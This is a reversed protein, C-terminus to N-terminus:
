GITQVSGTASARYLGFIVSLVSLCEAGTVFPQAAGAAADVAAQVTVLWGDIQPPVYTQPEKPSGPRTSRWELPPEGPQRFHLSGESGWLRFDDSYGRDLYYGSQLTGLMGGDFELTLANSDEIEIPLGGVNRSFGSVRRIRRGTIFQAVDIQHIGHLALDGGGAKQRSALWSKQYSPSRLRTQDSIYQMAVGYLQGLAGSRVVEAAKRIGPHLRSTLALMLHRKRADAVRVLEAFDEASTCAPKEALVHCGAELAARIADPSRHAELTVVALQPQLARLMQDRDRFTDLPSAKDKFVVRQKEFTEGTSDALAVRAVRRCKALSVALPGLHAGTPEAIIGVRIDGAGSSLSGVPATGTQFDAPQM